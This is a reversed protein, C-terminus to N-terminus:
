HCRKKLNRGVGYSQLSAKGAGETKSTRRSEQVFLHSSEGVSDNIRRDMCHKRVEQSPKRTGVGNEKRQEPGQDDPLIQERPIDMRSDEASSCNSVDYGVANVIKVLQTATTEDNVRMQEKIITLIDPTLKFRRGSGPLRSLTGHMKYKRITAWVAQKSIIYGEAALVKAM